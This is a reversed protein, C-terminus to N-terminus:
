ATISRHADILEAVASDSWHHVRLEARLAEEAKAKIRRLQSVRILDAYGARIAQSQRKTLRQYNMIRYSTQM